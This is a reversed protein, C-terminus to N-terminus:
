IKKLLYGYVSKHKIRQINLKRLAKGIPITNVRYKMEQLIKVIDTTTIFHDKADSEIFYKIILEEEHSMPELEKNKKQIINVDEITLESNFSKDIFALYYAQRWVDNIDIDKSYNFDIMELLENIIWRVSGTPDNLFTTENGSGVFSACRMRITNTKGYPLRLNIQTKSMLTKYSDLDKKSIKDLEDLNIILNQTIQIIGDKDYSPNEAIYNNLEPPCLFRCFTTKGGNQDKHFLVFVNKNFYNPVLACKVTRVLWKKFHYYFFEDDNTRVYSSLKRIYDINDWKSLKFFYNKIPDYDKVFSSKLYIELTQIRLNIGKRNLEILLSYENLKYTKSSEKLGIEYENLIINYVLQYKENLLNELHDYQTDSNENKYTYLKEEDM